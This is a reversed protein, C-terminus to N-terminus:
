VNERKSEVKLQPLLAMLLLLASLLMFAFIGWKKEPCEGLECQTVLLVNRISWAMNFTGVFINSRKAWIKPTIFLIIAIVSLIANLLGPHGFNTHPTNMGTLVANISPIYVWPSYCVGILGLAVAAGIYNSYKM